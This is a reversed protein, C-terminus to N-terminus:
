NHLPSLKEAPGGGAARYQGHGCEQRPAANLLGTCDGVLRGFIREHVPEAHVLRGRGPDHAFQRGVPCVGCVQIELVAARVVERELVADNGARTGRNLLADPQADDDALLRAIREGFVQRQGGHQRRRLRGGRDGGAALNDRRLREIRQARAVQVLCRHRPGVDADVLLQRQHLEDLRLRLGHVLRHLFDGDVPRVLVLAHHDRREVALQDRIVPRHRANGHRNRRPAAFFDLGPKGVDRRAFLEAPIGLFAQVRHHLLGDVARHDQEVRPPRRCALHRHDERGTCAADQQVLGDPVAHFGVEVALAGADIGVHDALLNGLREDRNDVLRRDRALPACEIVVVFAVLGAARHQDLVADQLGVQM